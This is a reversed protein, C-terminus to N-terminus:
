VFWTSLFNGNKSAMSSGSFLDVLSKPPANTLELDYSKQITFM